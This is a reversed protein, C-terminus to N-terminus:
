RPHYEWQQRFVTKLMIKWSHILKIKHNSVVALNLQNDKTFRTLQTIVRCRSFRCALSEQSSILKRFKTLVWLPAESSVTMLVMRYQNVMQQWWSKPKTERIHIKNILPHTNSFIQVLQTPLYGLTITILCEKAKPTEAERSTTFHTKHRCAVEKSTVITSRLVESMLRINDVTLMGLLKRIKIVSRTARMWLKLKNDQSALQDVKRTRWIKCGKKSVWELKQCIRNSLSEIIPSTSWRNNNIELRNHSRRITIGKCVAM